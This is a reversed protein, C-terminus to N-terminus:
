LTGTGFLWTERDVRERLAEIGPGQVWLCDVIGHLVTFGMAEAIDKTQILIERSQGATIEEHVEIRGFKANKYGTYGFCTVLMWKLISDIGQSQPGIKKLRKTERRLTM